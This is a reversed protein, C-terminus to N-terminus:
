QMSRFYKKFIYEIQFDSVNKNTPDLNKLSSRNYFAIQKSKGDVICITLDSRSKKPATNITGLSLISILIGKAVDSQYNADVRCLGMHVACIAYDINAQDIIAILTPPLPVRELKRQAKLKSIMQFLHFNFTRNTEAEFKLNNLQYHSSLYDNLGSSLNRNAIFSLSDSFRSQRGRGVTVIEISSAPNIITVIDVSKPVLDSALYRNACSLCIISTILLFILSKINM